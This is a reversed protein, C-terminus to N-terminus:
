PSPRVSCGVAGPLAGVIPDKTSTSAWLCRQRTRRSPKGASAPSSRRTASIFSSPMQSRSSARSTTTAASSTWGTTRKRASAPSSSARSRRSAALMAAGISSGSSGASTPRQSRAYRELSFILTVYISKDRAIMEEMAPLGGKTAPIKVYPQASRDERSSTAGGRDLSGHRPALNADVEISVCGDWGRCGEDWVSRLLRLCRARGEVRAHHLDGEPREGGRVPRSAPRRLRRRRLDGKPLHDPELHGLLGRGRADPARPRRWSPTRAIPLRDLREPWTRRAPPTSHEDGRDLLRQLARRDSERGASRGRRAGEASGGGDPLGREDQHGVDPLTVFFYQGPRFDVEEGLLDFTVLLTGKAVEQKEKTRARM